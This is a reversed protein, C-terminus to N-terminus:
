YEGDRPYLLYPEREVEAFRRAPTRWSELIEEASSGKAAAESEGAQATGLVGHERGSDTDVLRELGSVTM